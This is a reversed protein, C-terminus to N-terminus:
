EALYARADEADHGTAQAYARLFADASAYPRGAELAAAQEADVGPLQMLTEADAAGPDVPVFVYREYEAVQAEDVYKGIEARFERVSAYPRYEDFEHAMRDGVGPIAKFEDESATNLNVPTASELADPGPGLDAEALNPADVAREIAGADVEPTEADGACAALTLALTFVFFRM